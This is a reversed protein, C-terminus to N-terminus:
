CLSARATASPERELEELPHVREIIARLEDGTLVQDQTWSHDGDLPMFEIFRVQFQTSRAFQCFREAEDETFGRIAVANRIPRIQSHRRSHLEGLVLGLAEALEGCNPEAEDLEHGEVAIM